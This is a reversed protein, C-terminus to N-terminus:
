LPSQMLRNLKKSKVVEIILDRQKRVKEKKGKDPNVANEKQLTAEAISLQYYDRRYCHICGHNNYAVHM